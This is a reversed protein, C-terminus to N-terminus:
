ESTASQIMRYFFKNVNVGFFEKDSTRILEKDFWCLLYNKGKLHIKFLRTM